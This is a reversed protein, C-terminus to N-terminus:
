KIEAIKTKQKKKKKLNKKKKENINQMYYLRLLISAVCGDADGAKMGVHGCMRLASIWGDGVVTFAFVLGLL